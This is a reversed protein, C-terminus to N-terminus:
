ARYSRGVATYSGLILQTIIKETWELETEHEKGKTFHKYTNTSEAQDAM